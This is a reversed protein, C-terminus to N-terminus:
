KDTESMEILLCNFVEIELKSSYITYTKSGKVPFEAESRTKLQSNADNKLNRMNTM